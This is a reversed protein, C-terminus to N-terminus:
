KARGGAVHAKLIGLVLNSLTRGEAEAMARLAALLEPQIWAQVKVTKM